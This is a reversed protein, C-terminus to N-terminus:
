VTAKYSPDNLNLFLNEIIVKFGRGVQCHQAEAKDKIVISYSYFMVVWVGTSSFWNVKRFEFTCRHLLCIWWGSQTMGRFNKSDLILVGDYDYAASM